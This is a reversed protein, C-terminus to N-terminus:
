PQPVFLRLGVAIFTLKQNGTVDQRFGFDVAGLESIGALGGSLYGHESGGDRGGGARFVVRRQFVYEAGGGVTTTVGRNPDTTTFDHVGDVAIVLDATPTFAIGYGVGVPAQVTSLDRLNYGAVGVTLMSGARFIVGADATFGSHSSRGDAEVPGGSVRLYKGSIGVLLHEGFPFSLALGPEHGILHGGGSPSGTRYSYFLGGALNFGSTSDVASTHVVHGLGRDVYQYGGEVTYVRALSMGAPNVLPGEDGRADARGAGGMALGRTGLYDPFARVGGPALVTLMAVAVPAALRGRKM